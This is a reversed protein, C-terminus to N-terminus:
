NGTWSLVDSTNQGIMCIASLDPVNYAVPEGPQLPYGNATTLSESQDASNM